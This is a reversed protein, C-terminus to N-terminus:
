GRILWTITNALAGILYIIEMKLRANKGYELTKDRKCDYIWLGTTSVSALFWGFWQIKTIATMFIILSMIMLVLALNRYHKEFEDKVAIVSVKEWVSIMKLYANKTVVKANSVYKLM